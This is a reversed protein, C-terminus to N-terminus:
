AGAENAQGRVMMKDILSAMTDYVEEWKPMTLKYKREAKELKIEGLKESVTERETKLLRKLTHSPLDVPDTKLHELLSFPSLNARTAFWIKNQKRVILNIIKSGGREKVNKHYKVLDNIGIRAAETAILNCLLLSPEREFGLRVMQDVDATCIADTAEGQLSKIGHKQKFVTNGLFDLLLELNVHQKIDKYDVNREVIRMLNYALAIVPGTHSKVGTAKRVLEAHEENTPRPFVRIGFDNLGMEKIQPIKKANIQEIADKCAGNPSKMEKILSEKAQPTHFSAVFLTDGDFDLGMSCLNNGSARITYKCQVDDTVKVWQPRISVFGLCPFREALVVDGAKIKLDKAMDRHIEITDKPLDDSLTVTAHSSFPYRVCMGFSNLDGTKSGMAKTVNLFYRSIARMLNIEDNVNGTEIFKHACAIIHNVYIGVMSLGWKGSPHRWCRRMFANPIFIKDYQYVIKNEPSQVEQPLGMLFEELNDREVIVQFESPLKLVFGDSMFNEDVVTGAIKAPAHFMGDTTDIFKIDKADIVPLNSDVDGKVSRLIKIEDAIVNIGQAYSLIEKTIPNGPGFRTTLAKLEVHSFKLGSIREERNNTIVTRNGEWLQDEPDKTVGWFIKGVIASFEGCYTHIAWTGDKPFGYNELTTEIKQKERQYNDEVVISEINDPYLNNALAELIQGYNARREISMGGFMVDIPIEEGTKPHIAVGLDRFRIVGKNGHLNSFKSGDKLFRKGEVVMTHVAIQDGGVETLEKKIKIVKAEECKLDMVVPVNDSSFGLKDGTAVGEGEKILLKDGHIAFKRTITHFLGKHRNDVLIQDEFNLPTDLIATVMNWGKRSIGQNILNNMSVSRIRPLEDGKMALTSYLNRQPNHYMGFPTLRRLDEKLIVNKDALVGDSLGIATWGFQAYYKENKKVQYELKQEPNSIKDFTPDIIILRRNMIWSHMDTEYLPMANVIGNVLKQYINVIFQVNDSDFAKIIKGIFSAGSELSPIIVNIDECLLKEIIQHYNLETQARELWYNCMVRTIDNDVILELGYDSIHPLPIRISKSLNDRDFTIWLVNDIVKVDFGVGSQTYGERRNFERKVAEVLKDMREKIAIEL